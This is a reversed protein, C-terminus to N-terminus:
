LIFAEISIVSSADRKAADHTADTHSEFCRVVCLSAEPTFCGDGDLSRRAGSQLFRTRNRALERADDPAFVVALRIPDFLIKVAETKSDCFCMFPVQDVCM